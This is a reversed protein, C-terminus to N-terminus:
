LLASFFQASHVSISNTENKEGDHIQAPLHRGM